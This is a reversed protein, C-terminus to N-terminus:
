PGSKSTLWYKGLHVGVSLTIGNTYAASEKHGTSLLRGPEETWPIREALISSLTAM